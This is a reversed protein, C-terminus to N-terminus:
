TGDQTPRPVNFSVATATSGRQQSRLDAIWIRRDLGWRGPKDGFAALEAAAVVIDVELGHCNPASGSTPTFASRAIPGRM